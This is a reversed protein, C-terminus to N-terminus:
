NRSQRRSRKRILRAVPEARDLATDAEGLVRETKRNLEATVFWIGVAIGVFAIFAIAAGILVVASFLKKLM